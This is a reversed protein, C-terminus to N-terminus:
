HTIFLASRTPKCKKLIRALVTVKCRQSSLFFPSFPSLVCRLLAKSSINASKDKKRNGEEDEKIEASSAIDKRCLSKKFVETNIISTTKLALRRAWRYSQHLCLSAALTTALLAFVWIYNGATPPGCDKCEIYAIINKSCLPAAILFVSHPISWMIQIFADNKLSAFLSRVFSKRRDSARMCLVLRVLQLGFFLLNFYSHVM